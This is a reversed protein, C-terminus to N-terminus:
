FSLLLRVLDAFDQLFGRWPAFGHSIHASLIRYKISVKTMKTMESPRGPASDRITYPKGDVRYVYVSETWHKHFRGTAMKGGSLYVDKEHKTSQLYANVKKTNAKRYGYLIVLNRICFALCVAGILLFIM